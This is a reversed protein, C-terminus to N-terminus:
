VRERCSARGIQTFDWYTVEGCAECKHGHSFVGGVSIRANCSGCIAKREPDLHAFWSHWIGKPHIGKDVYKDPTVISGDIKYGADLLEDLVEDLAERTLVYISGPTIGVVGPMEYM